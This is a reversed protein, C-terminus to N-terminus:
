RPWGPASVGAPLAPIRGTLTQWAGAGYSNSNPGQLWYPIQFNNWANNFNTLQTLVGNAPGSTTYQDALQAQSQTSYGTMNPLWPDLAADISGLGGGGAAPAMRDPQPEGGCGQCPGLPEGQSVWQAGTTNDTVLIYAHEEGTDIGFLIVHRFFLQVTTGPDAPQDTAGGSDNSTSGAAFQQNAAVVGAGATPDVAPNSGPANTPPTATTAVGGSNGSGTLVVSITVSGRVGSPPLGYSPGGIQAVTGFGRLSSAFNASDGGQAGISAWLSAVESESSFWTAEGKADDFAHYSAPGGEAYFGSPDAANLPNNMVYSYRNYNQLRGAFQITPDAQLFRAINADYLRGNMNILGADDESEHGTFGRSSGATGTLLTGSSSQDAYHTWDIFLSNAADFNGNVFRRKGFPDYAYHQTISGSLNTVAVVSGLHDSHLYDKRTITASGAGTSAFVAVVQGGANVFHRNVVSGDTETEQEFFLGGVNDPHFFWTTRTGASAIRDERLRQFEPGYRFLYRTGSSAM